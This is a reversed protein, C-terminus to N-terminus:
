QRILIVATSGDAAKLTLTNGKIHYSNVTRLAAIFDGEQRMINGDTCAMATIMLRGDLQITQDVASYTYDASYSNCGSSGSVSDATFSATLKRGSNNIRMITGQGNDYGSVDWFTGNLEQNQPLFVASATGDAALLILQGNETRYAVAQKLATTFAAAQQMIPGPCARETVAMEESVNIIGNGATYSSWYQNCGDSGNVKGNASFNLTMASSSAIPTGGLETLLWGTDSLLDIEGNPPNFACGVLMMGAFITLIVVFNKPTM